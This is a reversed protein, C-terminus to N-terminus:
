IPKWASAWVVPTEKWMLFMGAVTEATSWGDRYRRLLAWVNDIGDESYSFSEFGSGRLRSSWREAKERREVSNEPSCAVLDMVARGADRELMLRENSTIPFSEDLSEFYVRFWRLCEEFGRIFELGSYGVDLDAEEEVITMIKPNMSRFMSLLYDRRHNTVSRITGNLNIALAEDSQILIQNYDFDSLDGVHHIVNFEFPVGMLRAFKEMRYVIEQMVKEILENTTIITTLRLHPTEDARTAIAELLTPWQTSYTNSIDIIHLKTEGEFAEM